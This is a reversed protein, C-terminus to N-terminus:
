SVDRFRQPSLANITYRSQSRPRDLIMDALLHAAALSSIIGHSGHAASIYINSSEELQGVIPFHDKSACRLSARSSVPGMGKAMSPVAAALKEINDIDDEPLIDDHDLWRQFTAGITHVGNLSPACYGGYNLNCKLKQSEATEKVQTIQGRVSQMPLWSTEEFDTVGNGCALIIVDADIDKLSEIPTNLHIDIGQAYHECLKRPDLFGSDPLHLAPYSLDVGAITSAEKASVVRKYELSWNWNELTQEFRKEKKEDAILHLAGCKHWDIDKAISDFARVAMAFSSTYYDSDPTRFASIRPNVLGIPNGSAGAHITGGVEFLNLNSVHRNLIYACSLGALGAGIIAVRM